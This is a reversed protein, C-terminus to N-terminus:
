EMDVTKVWILGGLEVDVMRGDPSKMKEDGEVLAAFGWWGARPMSYSFVGGSDAKILQTVFADNPIEVGGDQNHYEVEIEAFPVPRGDRKVIGRFTNGTWLGYPRVLPEIEVPLGVMRDWGEEKGMFDVVVKTYHVIMKAEAPEWYPAPEVYFVHDGPTALRVSATYATHGDVKRPEITELLDHKRGTVLFGFQRPMAMEMAPGQEMPHTFAIELEVTRPDGPSVVDSSPILLLFHAQATAALLLLALLPLSPSLIPVRM